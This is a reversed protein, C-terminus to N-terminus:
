KGITWRVAIGLSSSTGISPILRPHFSIDDSVDFSSLHASVFGDVIGVIYFVVAGIYSLELNKRYQDRISKLRAATTIIGKYIDDEGAIRMAYARKLKRYETTNSDILYLFGGIGIYYVSLKAFQRNYLQGGGPIIGALLAIKPNRAADSKLWRLSSFAMERPSQKFFPEVIAM